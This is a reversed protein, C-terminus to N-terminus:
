PMGAPCALWEPEALAIPVDFGAAEAETFLTASAFNGFGAENNWFLLGHEADRTTLVLRAAEAHPQASLANSVIAHTSHNAIGDTKIIVAGGGFEDNRLKDCTYAYEFGIPLASKACAFLLNAVQEIGFQDGSFTVVRTTHDQGDEITIAADLCLFDKDPFIPMFGSFPDDSIPPFADAFVPGLADYAERRAEGQLGEEIADIATEVAAILKAESATVTVAFAAHIYNNAM